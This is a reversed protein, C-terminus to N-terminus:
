WKVEMVKSVNPKVVEDLAKNVVDSVSMMHVVEEGFADKWAAFAALQKKTLKNKGAVPQNYLDLIRSIISSELRKILVEFEASMTEPWIRRKISTMGPKIDVIYSGEAMYDFTEYEQVPIYRGTTHKRKYLTHENHNNNM